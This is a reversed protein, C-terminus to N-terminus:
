ELRSGTVPFAGLVGVSLDGELKSTTFDVDMLMDMKMGQVDQQFKFKLNNGENVVEEMKMADEGNQENTLEVDYTDGAKNIVMNGKVTMGPVEIQYKWTSSLDVEQAQIFYGSMILLLLSLMYKKM